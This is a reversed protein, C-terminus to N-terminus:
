RARRFAEYCTLEVEPSLYGARVPEIRLMAAWCQLKKGAPLDGHPTKM